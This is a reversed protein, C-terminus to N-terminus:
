KTKYYTFIVENYQHWPTTHSLERRRVWGDPIQQAAVFEAYENKFFNQLRFHVYKLAPLAFFPAFKFADRDDRHVTVDFMTLRTMARMEDVRAFLQGALGMRGDKLSLYTASKCRLIAEIHGATVEAAHKFEFGYRNYGDPVAFELNRKAVIVRAERDLPYLHVSAFGAAFHLEYYSSNRFHVPELLIDPHATSSMRVVDINPFIEGAKVRAYEAADIVKASHNKIKAFHPSISFNISNPM